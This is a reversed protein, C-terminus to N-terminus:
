RMAFVGLSRAVVLEPNEARKLQPTAVERKPTGPEVLRIITSGFLFPM